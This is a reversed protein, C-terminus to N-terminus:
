NISFLRDLGAIILINKIRQNMGVISINAKEGGLSERMKLLMALGSSDIMNVAGLDVVRSSANVVEQSEFAENFQQYVELFTFQEAKIRITTEGAQTSLEVESAM